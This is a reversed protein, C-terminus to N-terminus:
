CRQNMSTSNNYPTRLSSPKGQALSKETNNIMLIIKPGSVELDMVPFNLKERHTIHKIHEM